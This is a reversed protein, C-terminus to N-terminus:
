QLEKNTKKLDNFESCAQKKSTDPVKDFFKTAFISAIKAMEARNLKDFM